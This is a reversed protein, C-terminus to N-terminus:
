SGVLLASGMQEMATAIASTGLGEAEADERALQIAEIVDQALAVM